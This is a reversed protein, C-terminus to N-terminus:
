VQGRIRSLTEATMGLYSAIMGLPVRQILTPRTTMLHQYRELATAMHLDDFRQQVLLLGHSVLLRGLRELDHHRQYLDELNRYSVAWLVSPELLQVIRRDPKRSLFSVISGVFEHEASLWDTVDRGDKYYYTRALGSEIFYICESVTNGAILVKGKDLPLRRCVGLLANQSQQSLPTFQTLVDLFPNM